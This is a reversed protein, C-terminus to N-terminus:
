FFFRATCNTGWSRTEDQKGSPNRIVCWARLGAAGHMREEEDRRSGRVETTESARDRVPSRRGGCGPSRCRVPWDRVFTWSRRCSNLNACARTTELLPWNHATLESAHKEKKSLTKRSNWIVRRSQTRNKMQRVSHIGIIGKNQQFQFWSHIVSKSFINKEGGM